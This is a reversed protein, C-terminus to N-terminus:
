QEVEEELGCVLNVEIKYDTKGYPEQPYITVKSNEKDCAEKTKPNVFNDIKEKNEETKYRSLGDLSIKLGLDKFEKLFNAREEDNKGVETYYLNEYFDRGMEELNKNLLKEKSESCLVITLLIIALIVLLSIGGIIISKKKNKQIYNKIEMIIKKM